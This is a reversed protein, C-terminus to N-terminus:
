PLWTERHAIRIGDELTAGRRRAELFRSMYIIGFNIGNGAIITFLFETAMNLHGIALQSFGFTWSVGIAITLVMAILTRLRLYYLFVIGVILFGGIIGVDTVDKNISTYESIGTQLDGAYGRVRVG